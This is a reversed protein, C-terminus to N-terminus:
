HHRLKFINLINNIKNKLKDMKDRKIMEKYDLELSRLTRRYLINLDSFKTFDIINTSKNFRQPYSIYSDPCFGYRLTDGDMLLVLYICKDANIILSKIMCDIINGFKRKIKSNCIINSMTIIKVGYLARYEKETLSNYKDNLFNTKINNYYAEKNILSIIRYLQWLITQSVVINIDDEKNKINFRILLVNSLNFSTQTITRTYSSQYDKDELLITRFIFDIYGKSQGRYKQLYTKIMVRIVHGLRLDNLKPNSNYYSIIKQLM